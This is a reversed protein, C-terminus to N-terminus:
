QKSLRQTTQRSVFLKIKVINLNSISLQADQEHQTTVYLTPKTEYGTVIHPMRSLSNNHQCSRERPVRCDRRDRGRLVLREHEARKAHDVRLRADQRRVRLGGHGADALLFLGVQM